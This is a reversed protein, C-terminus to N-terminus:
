YPPEPVPEGYLSGGVSKNWAAFEPRALEMRKRALPFDPSIQLAAWYLQFARPRSAKDGAKWARNGLRYYKEAASVRVSKLAGRAYDWKNLDKWIDAATLAHVRSETNKLSESIAAIEHSEASDLAQLLRHDQVSRAQSRLENLEWVKGCLRARIEPAPSDPTDKQANRELWTTLSKLNLAPVDLAIRTTQLDESRCILAYSTAASNSDPRPLRRREFYTTGTTWKAPPLFGHLPPSFAPLVSTTSGDMACELNIVFSSRRAAPIAKWYLTIFPSINSDEIRPGNVTLGVLECGPAVVTSVLCEPALTPSTFVDRRIRNFGFLDLRSIDAYELETEPFRDWAAAETFYGQSHIITPKRERFIYDAFFDGWNYRALHYDALKGLDVIEFNGLWSTAGADVLLVSPHQIMADDFIRNLRVAFEKVWNFQTSPNAADRPTMRACQGGVIAAQLFAVVWIVIRAPLRPWQRRAWEALVATGAAFIIFLVLSFSVLFRHAFMWDGCVWVAYLPIVALLIYLAAFDYRTRRLLLPGALLVVPLLLYCRTDRFYDVVYEWGRNDRGLVSKLGARIGPPVKAYYTNPLWEHFYAFHAAHYFAFPLLFALAWATFRRSLIQRRECLIRAAVAVAFYMPGEPRTVSLLFLLVASFPRSKDSRLECGFRWFSIVLLLNFLPNELGSGNWAVFPTHLAMLLPLLLFFLFVFRGFIGALWISSAIMTASGLLVGLVKPTGIPDFFGIREFVGLLLVWLPNSYGEVIEGGATLRAGNGHFINRAYSYTIGADDM